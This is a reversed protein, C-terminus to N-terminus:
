KEKEKRKSIPWCCVGCIAILFSIICLMAAKMLLDDITM